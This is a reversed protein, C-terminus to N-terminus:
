HLPGMKSFRESKLGTNSNVSGSSSHSNNKDYRSTSEKNGSDKTPRAYKHAGSIGFAKALGATEKPDLSDRKDYRFKGLIRRAEDKSIGGPSYKRFQTIVEKKEKINNVVTGVEPSKLIKLIKKRSNVDREHFLIKVM